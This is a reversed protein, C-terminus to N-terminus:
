EIERLASRKPIVGQVLGGTVPGLAGAATAPALPMSSKVIGSSLNSLSNKIPRAALGAISMGATYSGKSIKNAIPLVGGLKDATSLTVSDLLAKKTLTSPLDQSLFQQMTPALNVRTDLDLKLFPEVLDDYAKRGAGKTPNFIQGISAESLGKKDSMKYLSAFVDNIKALQGGSANADAQGFADKLAFYTDQAAKKVAPAKSYAQNKGWILDGLKEMEEAVASMPVDDFSQTPSKAKLSLTINQLRDEYAKKAAEVVPDNEPIVEAIANWGKDLAKSPNSPAAGYQKMLPTWAKGLEQKTAGIAAEIRTPVAAVEDAIESQIDKNLLSKGQEASFKFANAGSGYEDVGVKISGDKTARATFTPIKSVELPDHAIGIPNGADDLVETVSKTGSLKSLVKSGLWGLVGGAVGDILTRGVTEKRSNTLGELAGSAAGQSTISTLGLGDPGLAKSLAITKPTAAVVQTGLHLFPSRDMSAKEAEKMQSNIQLLRDSYDTRGLAKDTETPPLAAAVFPALDSGLGGLSMGRSGALAVTESNEIAQRKNEGMYQNKQEPSLKNFTDFNFGVDLQQKVAPDFSHAAATPTPEAAVPTKAAFKAWPGETVAPAPASPAAAQPEVQKFKEWPGSM